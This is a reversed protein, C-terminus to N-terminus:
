SRRLPKPMGSTRAWTKATLVVRERALRAGSGAQLTLSLPSPVRPWQLSQGLAAALHNATPCCIAPRVLVVTLPM